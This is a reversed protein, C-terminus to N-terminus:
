VGRGTSNLWRSLSLKFMVWILPYLSMNTNGPLSALAREATQRLTEGEQWQTQPLLWLKESGVQQQALLVLSDALCREVSTVDKDVDALCSVSSDAAVCGCHRETATSCFTCLSKFHWSSYFAFQSRQLSYIKQIDFVHEFGASFISKIIVRKGWQNNVKFEATHSAKLHDWKRKWESKLLPLVLSPFWDSVYWM